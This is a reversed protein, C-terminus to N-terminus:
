GPAGHTTLRGYVSLAKALDGPKGRLTADLFAATAGATVRLSGARGLSGALSPLPPLFLPADTFTLHASGPVTLRYATSGSLDLVKSLHPLYDPQEGPRVDHTLALVPQRFPRPAPDHPYGDLDIVATFRDDQRAAQLAASGGISHGTVAARATDLHGALPGEIRELRTLAFSLDAARISSWTAARREDEAPDGTAKLRTRVARGDALTVIASDYPHDLAAVVYGRSALEEAWATNQTRVGGLGPSFLVVPYREGGDAVLADFVARSRARPLGDLTFAPVGLYAALGGAVVSAEHETRGLYQAGPGATKRAPYWLQVVVTRRDGPEPTADEGRDPDTWQAVTTGVAYRGSPEPFDPTPLAWAAGAGAVVLGACVVAGVIRGRWVLALVAGALVPLLQWRFGDVFTVVTGVAVAVGAGAMVRLRWAEPLWRAAVLLLAGAVVVIEM